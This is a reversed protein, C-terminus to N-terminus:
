AGTEEARRTRNQARTIFFQLTIPLGADVGPTEPALDSLHPIRPPGRAAGACLQCNM